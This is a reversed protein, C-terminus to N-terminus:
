IFYVRIFVSSGSDIQLGNFFRSELLYENLCIMSERMQITMTECNINPVKQIVGIKLNNFGEIDLPSLTIGKSIIIERTTNQFLYIAASYLRQKIDPGLYGEHAINQIEELVKNTDKFDKINKLLQYVHDGIQESITFEFLMKPLKRQQYSSLLKRSRENGITQILYFIYSDTFNVFNTELDTLLHPNTSILEDMMMQLLIKSANCTKHSYVSKYMHFRSLLLNTVDDMVKEKYCLVNSADSSEKIVSGRIIRDVFLKGFQTTGTFLADRMLFDMRDAGVPGQVISHYLKNTKNWIQIIDDPNINGTLLITVIQPHKIIKYRHLDHGKEVGPYIKSYVSSDFSHSFPGHAIDHYLAACRLLQVINPSDPFLHNAYDGALKMAGLSHSFRDGKAGPFILNTGSLQSVDRLRQFFPHDILQKEVNTIDIMGHVPDKISDKSNM